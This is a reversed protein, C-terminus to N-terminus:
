AGEFGIFVEENAKAYETDVTTVIEKLAAEFCVIEEVFNTLLRYIFQLLKFFACLGGVWKSTEANTAV